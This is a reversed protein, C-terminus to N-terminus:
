GLLKPSTLFSINLKQVHRNAYKSKFDESSGLLYFRLLTVSDTYKFSGRIWRLNQPKDMKLIAETMTKFGEETM